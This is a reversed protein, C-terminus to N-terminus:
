HLLQAFRSLFDPWDIKDNLLNASAAIAGAISALRFPHRAALKILGWRHENQRHYDEHADIRALVAASLNEQSARIEDIRRSLEGHQDILREELQEIQVRVLDALYDPM